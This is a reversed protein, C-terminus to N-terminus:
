TALVKAEADDVELRVAGCYSCETMIADLAPSDRTWRQRGERPKKM